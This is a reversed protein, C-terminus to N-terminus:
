NSEGHARAAVDVGFEACGSWGGGVKAGVDVGVCVWVCVCM